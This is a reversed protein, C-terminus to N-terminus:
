EELEIGLEKAHKEFNVDCFTDRILLCLASLYELNMQYVVDPSPCTVGIVETDNLMAKEFRKIDRLLLNREKILESLPLMKVREIYSEPSIMM